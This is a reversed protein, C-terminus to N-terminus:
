LVEMNGHDMLQNQPRIHSRSPSFVKEEELDFGITLDGAMDGKRGEKCIFAQETVRTNLKFDAEVTFNDRFDAYFLPTNANNVLENCNLVIVTDQNEVGFDHWSGNVTKGAAAGLPLSLAIVPFIDKFILKM